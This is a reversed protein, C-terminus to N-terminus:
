IQVEICLWPIKQQSSYSLLPLVKNPCIRNVNYPKFFKEIGVSQDPLIHPVLACLPDNLAFLRTQRKKSYNIFERLMRAQARPLAPCNKLFKAQRPDPLAYSAPKLIYEIDAIPQSLKARPNCPPASPQGKPPRHM